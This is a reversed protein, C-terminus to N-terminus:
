SMNSQSTSWSIISPPDGTSTHSSRTFHSMDSTSSHSTSSSTLSVHSSSSTITTLSATSTTDTLSTAQSSSSSSLSPMYSADTSDDDTMSPPPFFGSSNSRLLSIHLALDQRANEVSRLWSTINDYPMRLRQELTRSTFLHHHRSLLMAPNVRFEEYLREVEQHLHQLLRSAAEESDKGHVVSNRHTWISRMYQWMLLIAQTAWVNTMALNDLQGRYCRVAADWKSSIRGLTFHYWGISHYQETFATTLLIDGSNLSGATPAHVRGITNVSSAIWAETGAVMAEIVKEPTNILQLGKILAQLSQERQISSLDSHCTLVHEFSEEAEQCCPCVPSANYYLQNQKNVNALGHILKATLCKQSV